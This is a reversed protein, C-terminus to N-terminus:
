RVKHSKFLKRIIAVKNSIKLDTLNENDKDSFYIEKIEIKIEHVYVLNTETPIYFRTCTQDENEFMLIPKLIIDRIELMENFSDITLIQYGDTKFDNNMKQVFSKYNALIKKIKISYNIDKNRTLYIYLVLVLILIADLTAFIISLTKYRESDAYKCTLIKTESTQVSTNTTINVIKNALPINLCIYYNNNNQNEFDECDSIVNINAKVNLTAIVNSLQYTQIFSNAIDNYKSYDIVIREEVFLNQSSNQTLEKLEKLSYIPNYLSKGTNKDSIVLQANIDYNYKYEVNKAEMSLRYSFDAVINDITSDIYANGKNDEDYFNDDNLNVVYEVKGNESYNIYYDKQKVFYTSTVVMLLLTVLAIIISQITILKKRNKRYDSRKKKEENSM